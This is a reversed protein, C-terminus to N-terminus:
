CATSEPEDLCLQEITGLTNYIFHPQIQSIMTSIRSETLERDTEALLMDKKMLQKEQEGYNVMVSIGMSVVYIILAM